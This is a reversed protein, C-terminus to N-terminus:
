CGVAQADVNVRNRDITTTHCYYCAAKIICVNSQLTTRCAKIKFSYRRSATKTQQLYIDELYNINDEKMM